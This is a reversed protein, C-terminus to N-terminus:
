RCRRVNIGAVVAARITQAMAVDTIADLVGAIEIPQAPTEKLVEDAAMNLMKFLGVLSPDRWLTGLFPQAEALRDSLDYLDELDLFLFGNRRFFDSGAPDDVRGFLNPRQRLRAALARAADDAIDPTVGDIVVVLNDSFQPFARSVAESNRRFDLDPSLMDETDTNIRVNEALFVGAGLTAVVSAVVVLWALRSVGATWCVLARRYAQSFVGFM